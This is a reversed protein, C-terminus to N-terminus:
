VIPRQEGIFRLEPVKKGAGLKGPGALVTRIEGVSALLAHHLRPLMAPGADAHQRGQKLGLESQHWPVKDARESPPHSAM